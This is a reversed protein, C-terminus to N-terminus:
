VDNNADGRVALARQEAIIPDLWAPKKPDLAAEDFHAIAAVHDGVRRELEAVLYTLPARQDPEVEGAAADVEGDAAGVLIEVATGAGRGPEVHRRAM